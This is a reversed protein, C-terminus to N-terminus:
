LGEHDRDTVPWWPLTRHSVAGPGTGQAPRWPHPVMTFRAGVQLAVIRRGRWERGIRQLAVRKLYATALEARVGTDRDSTGHTAVYSDWARRLMNQHVHSPALSGRIEGIDRATLNMWASTRHGGNEDGTRVRALVVENRQLPNPAFLKWDQGFEPQVYADIREGYRATVANPPAVNLFLMALHTLTVAALVLAAVVSVGTSM